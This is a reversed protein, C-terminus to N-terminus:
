SQDVGSAPLEAEATLSNVMLYQSVPPASPACPADGIALLAVDGTGESVAGCEGNGFRPSSPRLEVADAV